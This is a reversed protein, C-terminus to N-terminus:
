KQRLSDAIMACWATSQKRVPHVRQVKIGQEIGQPMLMCGHPLSAPPQVIRPSAERLQAIAAATHKTATVKSDGSCYM